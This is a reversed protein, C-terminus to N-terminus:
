AAEKTDVRSALVKDIRRGDLDIVEFRWGLTEVAEGTEPMHQLEGIVLGAVTEYDRREPLSIGLQDAMEDAPMWGALLWSGDERMVAEPEEEHEDSRFAGAIADLIDAPTVVGDFHGYEDHVLAMPVEAERLVELADLADLTDPIIPAKRIHARIDLPEERLTAALLERAQVVGLMNDPHGEAVPLRSHPSNILCHRISEQSANINVWDVDTRPTMVGRVARDGLRLVGAIMKREGTEIVGATEAEAVITKIEEETVASESETSQGMLRFILKTSADLLWVVPAAIRSILAMLPAVACAIGEPNKLALHKPVLEGVVVSLYTIAAVVLGFGLPEAVTDPVGQAKMIDTLMAGLAAGSFAGALVGVLTIGIQVTSLFRGPEEALRLAAGAGARGNDAMMKLRAKRASVIALESLAFLGNLGILFLAIGLELM